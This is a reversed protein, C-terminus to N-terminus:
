PERAAHPSLLSPCHPILLALSLMADRHNARPCTRYNQLQATSRSCNIEVIFFSPISNLPVSPAARLLRSPDSLRCTLSTQIFGILPHPSSYRGDGTTIHPSFRWRASLAVSLLCRLTGLSATAHM